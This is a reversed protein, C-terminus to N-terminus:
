RTAVDEQRLLLSVDKQRQQTGVSSYAGRWPCAAAANAGELNLEGKRNMVNEEEVEHWVNGPPQTRDDFAVVSQRLSELHTPSTQM